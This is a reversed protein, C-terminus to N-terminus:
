ATLKEPQEVTELFPAPLRALIPGYQYLTRLARLFAQRRRGVLKCLFNDLARATFMTAEGDDLEGTELMSETEPSTMLVVPVPSRDAGFAIDRALALSEPDAEAFDFLVLDPLQESQYPPKRRLCASAKKCHGIRKIGCSLDNDRFSQRLMSVRRANEALLLIQLDKGMSTTM